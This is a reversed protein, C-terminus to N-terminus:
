RARKSEDQSRLWDIVSALGDRFAVPEAKPFQELLLTPDCSSDRVDGPRAAHREVQMPRGLQAQLETVLQNVSVSAGFALNVPLSMTVRDAIATMIVGVVSSVHTFDRTQEGDGHVELSQGHLAAWAFRPIVAAYPHDHRQLPGYVNFLRLVLVELGYVEAFALAYSEAALKSAGYPSIPQTWMQERKPLVGNAGYVSSSSTLLVQAQVARAAELVHLTGTANVAHTAMPNAISRPVSGRAALHVIATAGQAADLVVQPDEISGVVLRADLGHLNSELGTSLDDLVVVEHDAAVLTRVLNAGIFGAGGTVLITM